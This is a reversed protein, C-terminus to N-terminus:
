KTPEFADPFHEVQPEGKPPVTVAVVDFRCPQDSWRRQRIVWEAARTIRRRKDVGVKDQPESYARSRLTKVEVFVVTEGDRMVLDLEGVPTSYRRLVLKLGQRRLFREALREGDRGLAHRPDNM